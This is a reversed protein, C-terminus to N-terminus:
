NLVKFLKILKETKEWFRMKEEPTPNKKLYDVFMGGITEHLEKEANDNEQKEQAKKAWPAERKTPPLESQEENNRRLQPNNPNKECKKNISLHEKGCNACKPPTTKPKQCEHTSHDDGCKMCKFQAFCNRQVHGFLQCRHCQIIDTKNKYSTVEVALGCCQSINYISKYERAIEVVVLPMPGNRNKMRSVKTVPYHRDHLDESIEKETIEQLLGRLVIKLPKESKLEFTHFETKEEKLFRYLSRYDDETAPEVQVGTQVMKAKTYKIAKSNLQRSITTWKEKERIIIPAIAHMPPPNETKREPKKPKALNKSANEVEGNNEQNEQTEEVELQVFRNKTEIPLPEEAERKRGRGQRHRSQKKYESTDKTGEDEMEGGRDGMPPPLGKMTKLKRGIYEYLTSLQTEDLDEIQLSQDGM